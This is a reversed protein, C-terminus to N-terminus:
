KKGRLARQVTRLHLPYFQKETAEVIEQWTLEETTRQHQIFAIVEPTLKYASKPGTKLPLLGSLGQNKFLSDLKYFTPRSFGFSSTVETIGWGDIYVHRLMEYKVQLLDYPDFFSYQSFLSDKISGPKTNLIGWQQLQNIKETSPM